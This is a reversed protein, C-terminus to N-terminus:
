RLTRTHLLLLRQSFLDEFLQNADTWEIKKVKYRELREEETLIKRDTEGSGNGVAECSNGEEFESDSSSSALFDRLDADLAEERSYKKM